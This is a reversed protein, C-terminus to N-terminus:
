MYSLACRVLLFFQSVDKEEGLGTTCLPRPHFAIVSFFFLLFFHMQDDVGHVTGEEIPTSTEKKVYFFIYILCRVFPFLPACALAACQLLLLLILLLKVRIYHVHLM